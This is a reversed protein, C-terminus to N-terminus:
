SLSHILTINKILFDPDLQKVQEFFFTMAEPWFLLATVTGFPPKWTGIIKGNEISGYLYLMTYIIEPNDPYLFKERNLEAKTFVNYLVKLRLMVPSWGEYSYGVVKDLECIFFENSKPKIDIIFSYNQENWKEAIPLIWGMDANDSPHLIKRLENAVIGNNCGALSAYDEFELILKGNDYNRKYWAYM